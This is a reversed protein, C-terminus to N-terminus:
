MRSWLRADQRRWSTYEILRMLMRVPVYCVLPLAPGHVVFKLDAHMSGPLETSVRTSRSERSMLHSEYGEVMAVFDYGDFVDHMSNEDVSDGLEFMANVRRQMESYSPNKLVKSRYLSVDLSRRIV